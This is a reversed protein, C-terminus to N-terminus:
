LEVQDIWNIKGPLYEEPLNGKKLSEIIEVVSKVVFILNMDTTNIEFVRDSSEVSEVLIVDLAEADSNEKVKDFSYERRKGIRKRLAVPAARLVIIVDSPLYHSIHGEMVTDMGDPTQKILESVRAKLREMDAIYTDRIDDRGTYLKEDMILKHLDIIRYKDRYLSHEKIFECVTTKGTGPTGTLAIIM